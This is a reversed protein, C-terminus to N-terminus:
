PETSVPNQERFARFKVSIRAEVSKRAYRLVKIPTCQLLPVFIQWNINPVHIVGCYTFISVRSRLLPCNLLKM